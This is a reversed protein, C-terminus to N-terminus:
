KTNPRYTSYGAKVPIRTGATNRGCLVVEGALVIVDTDPSGPAGARDAVGGLDDGGGSAGGGGETHTSPTNTRCLSVGYSGGASSDSSEIGDSSIILYPEMYEVETNSGRLNFKRAMPFM